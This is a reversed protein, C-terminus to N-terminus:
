ECEMGDIEMAEPYNSIEGIQNITITNNTIAKEEREKTEDDSKTRKEKKTKNEIKKYKTEDNVHNNHSDSRKEKKM